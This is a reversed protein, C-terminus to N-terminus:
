DKMFHSLSTNKFYIHTTKKQTHSYIHIYVMIAQEQQREPSLSQHTPHQIFTNQEGTVQTSTPPRKTM